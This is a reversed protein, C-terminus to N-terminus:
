RLDIASVCFRFRQATEAANVQLSFYDVKSFDPLHAGGGVGCNLSFSSPTVREGSRYGAVCYTRDDPDGQRHAVLQYAATKGLYDIAVSSAAREGWAQGDRPRWQILAGWNTKWDCRMNPIKEDDCNLAAIRGRACLAGDELYLNNGLLNTPSSFKPPSQVWGTTLGQNYGKPTTPFSFTTAVGGIASLTGPELGLLRGDSSITLRRPGPKIEPAFGSSASWDRETVPSPSVSPPAAPAAHETKGALAPNRMALRASAAARKREQRSVHAPTPEAPAPAEARAAPAAPAPATAVPLAPPAPPQLNTCAQSADGELGQGARVSTEPRQSCGSVRVEGESVRLTFRQSSPVWDVSFRTGTVRVGFPGALVDWRASPRHVVALDVHGHALGFSAGRRYSQAAIRGQTGAALTIRTGDEFLVGCGRDVPTYVSGDAAVLCGQLTHDLTRHAQLWVILGTAALVPALLALWRRRSPPPELAAEIQKWQRPDLSPTPAAQAALDGLQRCRAERADITEELRIL